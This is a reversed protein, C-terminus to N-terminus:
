SVVAFISDSNVMTGKASFIVCLQHEKISQYKYVHLDEELPKLSCCNLETGLAPHVNGM